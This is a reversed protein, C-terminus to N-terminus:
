KYHSVPELLERRPVDRCQAINWDALGRGRALCLDADRRLLIGPQHAQHHRGCTSVFDSLLHRIGGDALNCIWRQFLRRLSEGFLLTLGYGLLAFPPPGTPQPDAVDPLAAAPRLVVIAVALMAGAIILPLVDGPVAFVLMAGIISGVITLTLLLRLREREIVDGHRFSLTAGFSLATLALMNTGIATAAPM